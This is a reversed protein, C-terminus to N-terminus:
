LRPPERATEPDMDALFADASFAVFLWNPHDDRRQNARRLVAQMEALAPRAAEGALQLARSAQLVHDVNDHRLTATLRQLADRPSPDVALLLAAVEVQVAVSRDNLQQKLRLTAPPPLSGTQSALDQLGLVAWYRVAADTDDLLTLRSSLEWGANGISEAAARIRALPYRNAAQTLEWVTDNKLRSWADSEPLLGADRTALQWDQLQRRMTELISRHEASTALNVLQLPDTQTDYLEETDKRAAAYTEQAANM